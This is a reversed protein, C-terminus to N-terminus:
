MYRFFAIDLNDFSKGCSTFTVPAPDSNANANCSTAERIVSAFRMKSALSICKGSCPLPSLMCSASIISCKSKVESGISSFTGFGLFFDPLGGFNKDFDRQGGGAFFDHPRTYIYIGGCM